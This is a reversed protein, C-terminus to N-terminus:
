VYENTTSKVYLYTNRVLHGPSDSSQNLLHYLLLTCYVCYGFICVYLICLVYPYACYNICVTTCRIQLEPFNFSRIFRHCWLLGLPLTYYVCLKWVYGERVPYTNLVQVRSVLIYHMAPFTLPSTWGTTYCYIYWVELCYMCVCDYQM